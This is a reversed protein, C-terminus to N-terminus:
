KSVYKGAMAKEVDEVTCPIKASLKEVGKETVLYDDEIRVGLNESGIYIGPEITFVVGPLLVSSNSMVDHVDM